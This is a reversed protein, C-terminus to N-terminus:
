RVPTKKSVQVPIRHVHVIHRVATRAALLTFEAISIHRQHTGIAALDRM